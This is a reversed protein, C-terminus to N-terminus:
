CSTSRSKRRAQADGGDLANPMLPMQDERGRNSAENLELREGPITDARRMADPGVEEGVVEVVDEDSVEEAADGRDLNVRRWQRDDVDVVVLDVLGFRRGERSRYDPLAERETLGSLRSFLPSDLGSPEFPVALPEGPRAIGGRFRRSLVTLEDTETPRRSSSRQQSSAAPEAELSSGSV